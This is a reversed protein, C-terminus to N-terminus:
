FLGAIGTTIKDAIIPTAESIDLDKQRVHGVTRMQQVKPVRAQQGAIQGGITKGIKRDTIQVDAVCLYTVGEEKPPAQMGPYGGEMGRGAMAMRM